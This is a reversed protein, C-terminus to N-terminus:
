EEIDEPPNILAQGIAAIAPAIWVNSWGGRILDAANRWAPGQAEVQDALLNRAAREISPAMGRYRM